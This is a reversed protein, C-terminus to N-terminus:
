IAIAILEHFLLVCFLYYVGSLHVTFSDHLNSLWVRAVNLNLKRRIAFLEVVHFLWNWVLVLCSLINLLFFWYLDISIKFRTLAFLLILLGYSDWFIRLIFCILHSAGLVANGNFNILFFFLRFLLTTLARGIHTLYRRSAKVCRIREILLGTKAGFHDLRLLEVDLLGRVHVVERALGALYDDFLLFLGWRHSLKWVVLYRLMGIRDCIHIDLLLSKHLTIQPHLLKPRRGPFLVVLHVHSWLWRYRRGVLM